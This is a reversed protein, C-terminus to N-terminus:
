GKARHSELLISLLRHSEQLHEYADVVDQVQAHLKRKPNITVTRVLEAHFTDEKKTSESRPNLLLGSASVEVFYLQEYEDYELTAAIDHGCNEELIDKLLKTFRDFQENAVPFKLGKARQQLAGIEKKMRM